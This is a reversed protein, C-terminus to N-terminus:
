RNTEKQWWKRIDDRPGVAAYPKRQREEVQALTLDIGDAWDDMHAISQAHRDLRKTMAHIQWALAACAAILCLSLWVPSAALLWSFAHNSVQVVGEFRVPHRM